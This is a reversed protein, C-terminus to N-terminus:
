RLIHEVKAVDDQAGHAGVYHTRGVGPPERRREGNLSAVEVLLAEADLQIADFVQWACGIM